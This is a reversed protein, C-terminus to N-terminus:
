CFRLYSVLAQTVENNWNADLKFTFDNLECHAMKLDFHVEEEKMRFKIIVDAEDISDEAIGHIMLMERNPMDGRPMFVEEGVELNCSTVVSIGTPTAELVLSGKRKNPINNLFPVLAANGGVDMLLNLAQAQAM